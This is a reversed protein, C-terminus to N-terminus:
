GFALDGQEEFVIGVDKKVDHGHYLGGVKGLIPNFNILGELHRPFEDHGERAAVM